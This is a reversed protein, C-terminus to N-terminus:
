RITAASQMRQRVFGTHNPGDLRILEIVSRRLQENVRPCRPQSIRRQSRPDIIPEAADVFIQRAKDHQQRASLCRVGTLRQPAGPKERGDILAHLAARSAIRNQIQAVRVAHIATQAAAHQVSQCFHISGFEFAAPIRFRLSPNRLVFQRIAHLHGNGFHHIDRLFRLMDEVHVSSLRSINRRGFTGIIRSDEVLAIIRRKRVVTQQCAAQDFGTNTEHLQIVPAPIM